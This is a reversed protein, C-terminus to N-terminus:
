DLTRRFRKLGLLIVIVLFITIAILQLWVQTFNNGKVLIGRAVRIYHTLPFIEGVRQAWGPMGRFPFMFGSLLLSPLFFFVSMQVAQLPNRAITSITIGVALNAAIFPLTLFFLLLLNGEIPVSFLTKGILLILGAQIYGVIIYPLIKGIMVELPRIPTALLSEMTGRDRERTIAIATTMTMTLTLVVGLLGTVINYQTVVAPNYKAHVILNVPAFTNQEYQRQTIQNDVVPGQLYQLKGSLDHKFIQQMLTNMAAVAPGIAAPDTGDAELLLDPHEDRVFQRTFNPPVNLVFLAKGTALMENAQQETTNKQEIDFYGSNQMGQLLTRVIQSNDAMVVATPLHKPDTNIAFGFLIVQLLPIGIMIAFTGRDRRMQIFEKLMMAWLRILSFSELKKQM